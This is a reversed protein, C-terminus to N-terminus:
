KARGKLEWMAIAAAAAANLSEANGSMKITVRCFADKKTEEKLGNGENGILIVDGGKFEIESISTADSDVVCAFSRLNNAKIFSSINETIFLPMRLLTGMSARLVKPSYPDCSDGTIIIGSIGLAEATRSVAGLNSPDQLNELAIYRGNNDIKIDNSPIIGVALIGQPTNTDSIKKFLSDSLIYCNKSNKAFADVKEAYKEFANKTVMLRDFAIGNEMADECIRLGEIVFLGTERRSKASTQLSSVLKLVTNDKSTIEIFNAM